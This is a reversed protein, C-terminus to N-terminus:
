SVCRVKFHMHFTVFTKMDIAFPTADGTPTNANTKSRGSNSPLPQQKGDCLPTKQRSFFM